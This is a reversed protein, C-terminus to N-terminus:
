NKSSFITEIAVATVVVSFITILIAPLLEKDVTIGRRRKRRAM